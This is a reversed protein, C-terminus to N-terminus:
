EDGERAKDIVAKASECVEILLVRFKVAKGTRTYVVGDVFLNELPLDARKAYASMVNIIEAISTNAKLNVNDTKKVIVM